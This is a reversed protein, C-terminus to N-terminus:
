IGEEITKVRVVCLVPGFIEEKYATMEPTVEIVSPKVFNGNPFQANKYGRGDLLFKGGEKEVTDL